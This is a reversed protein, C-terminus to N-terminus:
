DNLLRLFMSALSESDLGYSKRLYSHSGVIQRSIMPLGISHVKQAKLPLKENIFSAFGGRTVHEEVVFLNNLKSLYEICECDIAQYNWCSFINTKIRKQELLNAAKVVEEIIASNVLVNIDADLALKRDERLDYVKDQLGFNIEGGKGLRLYAPRQSLLVAEICKSIEKPMTPTFIDIDFVSMASLDEVLHHSYGATGYAFGAGVSVITAPLGMHSLDNRIQELARFTPFNAISYFFPRYGSKALGAVFSVSSQETVGTNLYQDPLIEKYRDFVGYGLDGVVLMIRPNSLAQKLLQDAFETRM